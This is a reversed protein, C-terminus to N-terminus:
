ASRAMEEKPLDDPAGDRQDSDIQALMAEEQVRVVTVTMLHPALLERAGLQQCRKYAVGRACNGHFGSRARVPKRALELREPM